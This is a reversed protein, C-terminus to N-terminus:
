REGSKQTAPAVVAPHAIRYERRYHKVVAGVLLSLVIAGALIQEQRTLTLMRAAELIRERWPPVEQRKSM